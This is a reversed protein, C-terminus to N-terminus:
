QIMSFKLYTVYSLTYISSMVESPIFPILYGLGTVTYIFNYGRKLVDGLFLTRRWMMKIFDNSMYIKEGDFDVGDTELRYCHLRLFMCRQYSVQDAAVILLHDVLGWTCDSLWFGEMFLDLMSRDGEVYARNVMAIILSKNEM